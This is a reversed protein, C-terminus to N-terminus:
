KFRYNEYVLMAKKFDTKNSKYPPLDKLLGSKIYVQQQVKNHVCFLWYSLTERSEFKQISLHTKKGTSNIINKYHDRCVRCPLVYQLSKFFMFYEKKSKTNYNLTICHLFLWASPGWKTTNFGNLSQM